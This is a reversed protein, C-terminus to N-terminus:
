SETDLEVQYYADGARFTCRISPIQVVAEPDTTQQLAWSDEDLRMKHDIAVRDQAMLLYDKLSPLTRYHEFKFARDYKETSPSLIEIIAVADTIMDRQASAFQPKGCFVVIDPYFYPGRPRTQLRLDTSAMRCPRDRLQVGLLLNLNHVITAHNLTGGSMAFMEGDFYESRSEAARDIALYQEPTLYPKPQTSM